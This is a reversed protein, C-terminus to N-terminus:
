CKDFLKDLSIFIVAFYFMRFTGLDLEPVRSDARRVNQTICAFFVLLHWLLNYSSEVFRSLAGPPTNLANVYIHRKM